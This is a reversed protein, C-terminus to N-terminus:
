RGTTQRRYPSVRNWMFSVLPNPEAKEGTAHRGRGEIYLRPGLSCAKQGSGILAKPEKISVINILPESVNVM